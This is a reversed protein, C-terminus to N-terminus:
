KHQRMARLFDRQEIVGVVKHSQPGSVVPLSGVDNKNFKDLLEQAPMDLPVALSDPRCLDEATILRSLAPDYMLNRIDSFHIIGVLQDDPDTVPFHNYRSHEVHRLVEDFTAEAPICKVNTRMLHRVLLKDDAAAKKTRGLGIVRLFAQATLSFMTESPGHDCGTRRLLTAAKVEGAGVVLRKILLPGCVEFVVMAGLVSISFNRQAWPDHWHSSVYDALAIVVAGQCLLGIGLRRHSTDHDAGVWIGGLWGGAVKGLVRCVVYAVGIGRMDVLDELHLQYGALVFFGVFLPQGVTQIGSDMRDPDIAINNFVAGLCLATLLFSYSIGWQAILLREGASLVILLAVLILLTEAIQLRGHAIAMVFGLIVGLLLSGLTALVLGVWINGGAWHVGQLVGLGALVTFCVSFGIISVVNNFGTASLLTDTVPGKAEYERLTILTAAPATAMGAMGLLLAFGALTAMSVEGGGVLGAVFVGFFVLVGTVAMEAVGIRFLTRGVSRIHQVEFVRGISFLILGLALGKVALLPKEAETLGTAQDSGAEIGLWYPIMAKLVAGAFLYGVVRPIRFLHAVYGGAIACVLMLGFLLGTGPGLGFVIGESM